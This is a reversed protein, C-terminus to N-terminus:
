KPSEEVPTKITSDPTPEATPETAPEATPEAMTEVTPTAAEPTTTPHEAAAKELAAKETATKLAAELVAIRTDLESAKKTATHEREASDKAIRQAEDLRSRTEGLALAYYALGAALAITVM